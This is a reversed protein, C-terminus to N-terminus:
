RGFGAKMQKLCYAQSAVPHAACQKKTVEYLADLRAATIAAAAAPSSSQVAQENAADQLSNDQGIASVSFVLGIVILTTKFNNM